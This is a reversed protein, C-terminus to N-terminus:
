LMKKVVCFLFKASKRKNEASFFITHPYFPIPQRIFCGWHQRIDSKKKKADFQIM